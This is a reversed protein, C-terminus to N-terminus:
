NKNKADIERLNKLHNPIVKKIHNSLIELFEEEPINNTGSTHMIEALLLYIANFIADPPNGCCTKCLKELLNFIKDHMEKKEEDM